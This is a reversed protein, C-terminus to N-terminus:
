SLHDALVPNTQVSAIGELQAIEERLASLTEADSAEVLVLLDIPGAVAHCVLVGRRRLLAPAVDTCSAGPSLTLTLWARLAIARSRLRLTYGLIVGSRELRRLREQTTSRSLGVSRALETLPTRANQRLLAIISEDRADLHHDLDTM